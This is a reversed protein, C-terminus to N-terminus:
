RVGKGVIRQVLQVTLGTIAIGFLTVIILVTLIQIWQDKILGFSTMLGVGGPVFLLTINNLFFQCVSEISELKIIGILLCSLLLIMGLVASPIPIKTVDKIVNAIFLIGAIIALEKLIKM